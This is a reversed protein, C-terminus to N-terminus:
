ARLRAQFMRLQFYMFCGVCINTTLNLTALAVVIASLVWGVVSSGLVFALTAALLFVGGVGQAFNHARPDDDQLNVPLKLAPRVFSSYIRKFAALNPNFTGALMVAAILAVIWWQGLIAALLIGTIISIQNFKLVNPDLKFENFSSNTNSPISPASM